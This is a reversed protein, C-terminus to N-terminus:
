ASYRTQIRTGDFGVVCGGDVPLVAGTVFSAGDSALMLATAGAADAQELPAQKALLAEAAAAHGGRAAWALAASGYADTARPYAGADLLATVVAAHGAAAAKM